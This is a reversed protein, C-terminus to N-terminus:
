VREVLSVRPLSFLCSLPVTTNEERFINSGAALTVLENPLNTREVVHEGLHNTRRARATLRPPM